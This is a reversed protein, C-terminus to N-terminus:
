QSCPSAIGYGAFLCIASQKTVAISATVSEDAARPIATQVTGPNLNENQSAKMGEQLLTQYM